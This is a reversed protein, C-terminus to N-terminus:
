RLIFNMRINLKVNDINNLENHNYFHNDLSSWNNAAKKKNKKIINCIIIFVRYSSLKPFLKISFQALLDM